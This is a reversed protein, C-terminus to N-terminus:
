SRGCPSAEASRAPSGRPRQQERERERDVVEHDRVEVGARLHREREEDPAGRLAPHRRLDVDETGNDEDDRQGSARDVHEVLPSPFPLAAHARVDCRRLDVALADLSSVSRSLSAGRRPSAPARLAHELARAVHHREADRGRVVRAVRPRDVDLAALSRRDPVDVAALEPVEVVAEARHDHAVRMRRDDFAIESRTRSPVCKAAGVSSPITTASSSARRKPRGLHRKVFEPESAVISAIRIARPRLPRSVIRFIKPEYWPCWSPTITATPRIPISQFSTSGSSM